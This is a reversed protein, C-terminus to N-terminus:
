RSVEPYQGRQDATAAWRQGCNGRFGPPAGFRCVLRYRMSLGARPQRIPCYRALIFATSRTSKLQSTTWSLRVSQNKNLGSTKRLPHRVRWRFPLVFQVRVDEPTRPERDGMVNGMGAAVGRVCAAEGELWSGVRQHIPGFVRRPHDAALRPAKGCRIDPICRM